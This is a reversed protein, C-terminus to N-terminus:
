AACSCCVEACTLSNLFLKNEDAPDSKLPSSKRLVEVQPPALPPQSMNLSESIQSVDSYDMQSQLNHSSSLVNSTEESLEQLPVDEHELANPHKNYDGCTVCHHTSELKHLDGHKKLSGQRKFHKNCVDCSFPKNTSHVRLHAKVSYSWKFTKDCVPCKHPREDSHVRAHKQLEYLEKFCMGCTDCEHPKEGCHFRVYHSKAHSRRKFTKGCQDCNFPREGSHVRMHIRLRSIQKFKLGCEECSLEKGEVACDALPGKADVESSTHTPTSERVDGRSLQLAKYHTEGVRLDSFVINRLTEFTAPQAFVTAIRHQVTGTEETETM